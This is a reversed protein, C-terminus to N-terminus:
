PRSASSRWWPDHETDDNGLCTGRLTVSHSNLDDLHVNVNGCTPIDFPCSVRLASLRLRGMFRPYWVWSLGTWPGDSNPNVCRLGMCLLDRLSPFSVLFQALKHISIVSVETLRLAQLSSYSGLCALVGPRCPAHRLDEVSFTTALGGFQLEYLNPLRHALVVPAVELLSSRPPNQMPWTDSIMIVRVLLGLTPDRDLLARLEDLRYRHFVHITHFIMARSRVHLARCTLSFNAVTRLNDQLSDIIREILEMAFKHAAPAPMIARQCRRASTSPDYARRPDIIHDTRPQNPFEAIDSRRYIYTCKGM